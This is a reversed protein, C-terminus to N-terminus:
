MYIGLVQLFGASVPGAINGDSLVARCSYEGQHSYTINSISLFLSNTGRSLDGPTSYLESNGLWELRSLVGSRNLPTYTIMFNIRDINYRSSVSLPSYVDYHM